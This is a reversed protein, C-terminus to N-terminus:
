RVVLVSQKASRALEHSVSGLFLEKVGSLGRRGVVILDSNNAKASEMIVRSPLGGALITEIEIGFKSKASSSYKSLLLNAEVQLQAELIRMTEAKAGIMLPLHMVYIAYLKSGLKKAMGAASEFARDADESGDLAVLIESLTNM